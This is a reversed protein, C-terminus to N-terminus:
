GGLLFELLGAITLVIITISIAKDIYSGYYTFSSYAYSVGFVLVCVSLLIYITVINM